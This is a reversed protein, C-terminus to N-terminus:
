FKKSNWASTDEDTYIDNMDMDMDDIDIDGVVRLDLANTKNAWIRFLNLYSDRMLHLIM